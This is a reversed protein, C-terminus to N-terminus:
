AALRLEIGHDRTNGERMVMAIVGEQKLSALAKRVASRTAGSLRAMESESRVFGGSEWRLVELISSRLDGKRIIRDTYTPNEAHLWAVPRIADRKLAAEPAWLNWKRALPSAANKAITELAANGRHIDFLARAVPSPTCAEVAIRLERSGGHAIASELILGLAARGDVELEAAILRKLRHKAVFGGYEVLWTIVLPLLRANAGVQRATALLLRELDPTQAAPACNFVIGLKAWQAELNNVVRDNM